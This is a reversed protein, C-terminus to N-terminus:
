KGDELKRVTGTERLLRLTYTTQQLMRALELNSEDEKQNEEEKMLEPDIVSGTRQRIQIVNILDPPPLFLEKLAEASASKSQPGGMGSNAESIDVQALLNKMMEQDEDMNATSTTRVVSTDYISFESEMMALLLDDDSDNEEEEKENGGKHNNNPMNKVTDILTCIDSCSRLADYWKLLTKRSGEVTFEFGDVSFGKNLIQLEVTINQLVIVKEIRFLIQKKRNNADNMSAESAMRRLVRKREKTTIKPISKAVNGGGLSGARGARPSHSSKLPSVAGTSSRPSEEADAHDRNIEIQSLLVLVDSFLHAFFRVPKPQGHVVLGAILHRRFSSCLGFSGGTIIKPMLKWGAVTFKQFKYSRLLSEIEGREVLEL